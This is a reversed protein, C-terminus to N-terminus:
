TPAPRSTSLSPHDDGARADLGPLRAFSYVAGVTLFIPVAFGFTMLVGPWTYWAWVTLLLLLVVMLSCFPRGLVMRFSMRVIWWPREQFHARVVWSVLAFVDYLVAAFLLLGSAVIGAVGMDNWNALYYDWVLVLGVIFQPWGFANASGLDDRWAHHFTVWTQRITWSRDESLIWTRFTAYSAAVSPFFGVVVLGMVTHVVFAVNVMFVMLVVRAFREYGIAFNKM